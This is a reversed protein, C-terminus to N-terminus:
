TPSWALDTERLSINEFTLSCVDTFHQKAQYSGYFALRYPYIRVQNASSRKSNSRTSISGEASPPIRSRFYEPGRAM